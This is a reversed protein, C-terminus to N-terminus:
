HKSLMWLWFLLHLIQLGSNIFLLQAWKSIKIIIQRESEQCFKVTTKHLLLFDTPISIFLRWRIATGPIATYYRVHGGQNRGNMWICFSWIFIKLVPAGPQSLRYFMCSKIEPEHTWAWHQTYLECFLCVFLGSKLMVNSAKLVASKWEVEIPQGWEWRRGSRM